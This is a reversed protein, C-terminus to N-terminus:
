DWNWVYKGRVLLIEIAGFIYMFFVFIIGFYFFLGVVGGFELGFVRFIMFYFGGGLFLFVIVFMYIFLCSVVM